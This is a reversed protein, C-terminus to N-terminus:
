QPQVAGVGSLSGSVPGKEREVGETNQHSPVTTGPPHLGLLNPFGPCTPEAQEILQQGFISAVTV